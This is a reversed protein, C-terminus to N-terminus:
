LQSHSEDPQSETRMKYQSKVQATRWPSIRPATNLMEKSEQTLHGELFVGGRLCTKPYRLLAAEESDANTSMNLAQARALKPEEESPAAPRLAPVQCHMRCQETGRMKRDPSRERIRNSLTKKGWKALLSM